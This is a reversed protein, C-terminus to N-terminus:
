DNAPIECELLPLASGPQRVERCVYGFPELSKRCDASTLQGGMMHVEVIMRPRFRAFFDPQDFIVAEAGEIDCKIFDVRNLGCRQALTNLTLAPVQRIAGRGAGVISAASSGMNGETSFELTGDSSWVAGYVVDIARGTVRQYLDVNKRVCSINLADADVSVVKGGPGVAQDFLISTLGSYAGLDIVVAGDFLRGFDIYQQTTEIPEALSPFLIPHLPYGAVEHFRSGSYDVVELEGEEIPEVASHYFDFAEIIDPLYIQHRHSLRILRHGAIVDTRDSHIKLKLGKRRALPVFLLATAGPAHDRVAFYGQRAAERVFGM